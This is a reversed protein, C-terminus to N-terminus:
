HTVRPALNHSLSSSCFIRLKKVKNLSLAGM